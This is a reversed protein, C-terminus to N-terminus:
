SCYTRAPYKDHHRCTALTSSCLNFASLIINIKGNHKSITQTLVRTGVDTTVTGNDYVCKVRKGSLRTNFAIIDLQSTYCNSDARLGRGIVANNM